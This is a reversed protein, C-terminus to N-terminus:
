LTESNMHKSLMKDSTSRMSFSFNSGPETDSCSVFAIQASHRFPARFINASPRQTDNLPVVNESKSLSAQLYTSKRVAITSLCIAPGGSFWLTKSVRNFASDYSTNM